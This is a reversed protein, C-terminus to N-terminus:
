SPVYDGLYSPKRSVRGSRTKTVTPQKDPPKAQPRRKPARERNQPLERNQPVEHNQPIEIPREEREQPRQMQAVEHDQPIEIQREEREQVIPPPRQPVQQLIQQRQQPQQQNRPQMMMQRPPTPVPPKARIKHPEERTIMLEKRNRRMLRAQDGAKIMYSNPLNHPKVFEAPKWGEQTLTRISDGPQIVKQHKAGRDYYMKQQERYQHLQGQVLGPHVGTPQLLKDSTPLQTRTRRGMLRQAPSGIEGRPTNRLELLALYPDEGTESCKKLMSKIVKVANEALGNVQQHRPSSTCTIHDIRTFM